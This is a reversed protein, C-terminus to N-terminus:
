TSGDRLTSKSLSSYKRLDVEDFVTDSCIVFRGAYVVATVQQKEANIGEQVNLRMLVLFDPYICQHYSYERKLIERIWVSRELESAFVCSYKKTSSQDVVTLTCQCTVEATAADTFRCKLSVGHVTENCISLVNSVDIDLLCTRAKKPDSSRSFFKLHNNEYRTAFEKLLGHKTSLYVIAENNDDPDSKAFDFDSLGLSLM